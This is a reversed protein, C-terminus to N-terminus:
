SRSSIFVTSAPSAAEWAAAITRGDSSQRCFFHVMERLETVPDSMYLAVTTMGAATAGLWDPVDRGYAHMRGYRGHPESYHRSVDMEMASAFTIHIICEESGVRLLETFARRDDAVFEIVHSLSIFDYSADARPVDQMDISNERGYRSGEFTAFWSADISGDPAFQLARRWALMPPPVTLM